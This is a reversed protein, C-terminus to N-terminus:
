KCHRGKARSLSEQPLDGKVWLAEDAHCGSSGGKGWGRAVTNRHSCHQCAKASNSLLSMVVRLM